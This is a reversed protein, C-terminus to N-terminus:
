TNFVKTFSEGFSDVAFVMCHSGLPNDRINKSLIKVAPTTLALCFFEPM